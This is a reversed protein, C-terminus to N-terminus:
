PSSRQEVMAKAKKISESRAAEIEESSPISRVLLVAWVILFAIFALSIWPLYDEFIEFYTKNWDGKDPM